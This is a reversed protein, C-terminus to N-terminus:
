SRDGEEASFRATLRDLVDTWKEDADSGFETRFQVEGDDEWVKIFALQPLGNYWKDIELWWRESPILNLWLDFSDADGAYIEIKIGPFSYLDHHLNEEYADVVFKSTDGVGEKYLGKMIQRAAQLVKLPTHKFHSVQAIKKRLSFQPKRPTAKKTPKM